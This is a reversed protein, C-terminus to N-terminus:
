RVMFVAMAASLVRKSKEVKVLALAHCITFSSTIPPTDELRKLTVL